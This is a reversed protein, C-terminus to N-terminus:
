GKREKIDWFTTEKKYTHLNIEYDSAMRKYDYNTRVVKKISCTMTNIASNDALSIIANKLAEEKQELPTLLAKKEERVAQLKAFLDDITPNDTIVPLFSEDLTGQCLSKYFLKEKELLESQYEINANVTVTIIEFDRYSCYIISELGSVFMQHQLQPYYKTPIVGQSALKHDEACPVKIECAIRKVPDYGDFSAIMFPYDLSEVVYPKLSGDIRRNLMDLAIPELEKGATIGLHIQTHNTGNLKEDFLQKTKKYPSVNMIIPADSAGIKHRRYELWETSNQELDVIRCYEHPM